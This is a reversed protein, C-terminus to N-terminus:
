RESEWVMRALLVRKHLGRGEPEIDLALYIHWLHTKVTQYECYVRQAIERNSLGEAVLGAIERQRPSLSDLPDSSM